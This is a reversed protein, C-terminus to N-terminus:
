SDPLCRAYFRGALHSVKENDRNFANVEVQISCKGRRQLREFFRDQEASDSATARLSIATKLPAAYSIASSVAVVDVQYGKYRALLTTLSWGSLTLLASQSGAFFTGKDNVNPALPASMALCFQEDLGDYQFELHRCLPIANRVHEATSLLADASFIM